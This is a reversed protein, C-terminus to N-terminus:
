RAYPGYEIVTPTQSFTSGVTNSRGALERGDDLVLEFTVRPGKLTERLRGSGVAEAIQLAESASAPLASLEFRTGRGACVILEAESAILMLSAAAANPPDFTFQLLRDNLFVERPPVLIAAGVAEALGRAMDM